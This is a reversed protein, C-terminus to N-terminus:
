HASTEEVLVPAPEGDLYERLRHALIAHGKENIHDDLIFYDEPGLPNGVRATRINMGSFAPLTLLHDVADAFGVTNEGYKDIKFVIVEKAHDTVRAHKLIKLFTLAQVTDSATKSKRPMLAHAFSKSVGALHKFVYYDSRGTIAEKLSDYSQPTRVKLTFGEQVYQQNEEFDNPHYQIIIKDLESLGLREFLIMERATGFSSMGANLIKKNLATELVHPFTKDQAVGWGLTFSDGLSVISPKELSQQDDRLGASNVHNMVEFERNSFACDGPKLMYFLGSDYQACETVQLIKRDQSLYYHQFYPRVFGPIAHPYHLGWSILAEFILALALATIVNIIVTRPHIQLRM